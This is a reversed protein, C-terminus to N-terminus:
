IAQYKLEGNFLKQSANWTEGPALKVLDHVHGPEVCVMQLYGDKPEFDGMGSSKEIWPNWVVADPLNSRKLTHIPVGKRVVQIIRDEPVEKYIKDVEEHFTVVPHKDDYTIQLLQDYTTMGALNSVFTDEIDEVRLYTHFLWNFKMEKTESTNKVEIKTTLSEKHLSVTLILTFDMPWLKILDPNAQEPSLAFQVTPPNQRTQGLFEWTSNRAFGHQPLDKLYEDATNKGFVPFVLPIGGRVPKSGDLKTASSLWLQESGKSVWSYITAGYKLIKVVSDSHNPHTIIVQTDTEQISM